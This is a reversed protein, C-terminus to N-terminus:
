GLKGAVEDYFLRGFKGKYGKKWPKKRGCFHIIVTNNKVWDLDAKKKISKVYMNHLKLYKEDLNYLLPNIAVIRESYLGNLIDQDFLYLKQKYKRAFEYVQEVKQEKRLIDLNMLMMGSNIYVSKPAMKLRIRVFSQLPEFLHTCAAFYKGDLDIKYLEDLENIIVMDPDLYLVRDLDAPLIHAAFIRYCAEKPWKNSYPLGSFRDPPLQIDIIECKEAPVASKIRTLNEPTLSSHVVYVKFQIGPNSECMSRLMVRLPELYGHNLTVLVNILLMVRKYYQYIIVCIPQLIM